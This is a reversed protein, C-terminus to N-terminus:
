KRLAITASFLFKVDALYVCDSNFDTNTSLKLDIICIFICTLLIIEYLSCKQKSYIVPIVNDNMHSQQKDYFTQSWKTKM